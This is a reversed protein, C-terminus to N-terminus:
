ILARYKGPPGTTSFGGPLACFVPEIGPGPINWMGCLMGCSSFGVHRSGMLSTVLVLLQLVAALSCGRSEPVLSLGHMGVFVLMTTFFM